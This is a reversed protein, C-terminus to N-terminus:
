RGAKTRCSELFKMLNCMEAKEVKLFSSIIHAAKETLGCGSFNLVRLLKITRIAPALIFIGSDGINCRSFSLYRIKSNNGIGKALVRLAAERLQIGSVDLVQLHSSSLLSSLHNSAIRM